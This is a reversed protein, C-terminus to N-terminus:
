KTKNEVSNYEVRSPVNKTCFITYKEILLVQKRTGEQRPFFVPISAVPIGFIKQVRM